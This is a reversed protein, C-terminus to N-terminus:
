DENVHVAFSGPLYEAGSLIQVSSGALDDGAPEAAGGLYKGLFAEAIACLALRNAPRALGHGEDPFLLYVVPVGAAQLAAVMRDSEERPVRPDHAGQSILLPKCIREAHALPSRAELQRRGDPTTHDGVRQRFLERQSQWQPPISELLSVLHSPGMLDVGCAFREPTFALGALCAYGGYSSGMIGIRDADAIGQDITWDVADLLDDQMARGWERDGANTFAKGFGTSGRYNVSLVAYGRNALWQHWPQFGWQDREWPGGHVLLMLPLPRSASDPLTLYATMALGDRTTVTHSQMPLLPLADLQASNGFLYVAERRQRDFHYFRTPTTDAQYGVIWHRDDPTRSALSIDGHCRGRLYDFEAAVGADLAHWEKRAWTVAVALPQRSRGDLLVDSVDARPDAYLVRRAGSDPDICCLAATDRDRSDVLYLRGDAACALPFTTLNDAAPVQLWSRWDDGVPRYWESGGDAQPRVGLWPRFDAWLLRQFEPVAPVRTRTGDALTIRFIGASGPDASQVEVLVEGPYRASIDLLRARGEGPTLDLVDGGDLYVRYLHWQENGDRDGLYVLSHGDFAWACHGIGRGSEHTVPTATEPASAPTVIINMIGDVPALSALQGGDPSILAYARDPNGFLSRRPILPHPSM